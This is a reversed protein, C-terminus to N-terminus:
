ESEDSEEALKARLDDAFGTVYRDLDAEFEEVVETPPDSESPEDLSDLFAKRAESERLFPM